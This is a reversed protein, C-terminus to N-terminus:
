TRIIKIQVHLIWDSRKLSFFGNLKTNVNRPIASIRTTELQTRNHNMVDECDRDDDSVSSFTKCRSIKIKEEKMVKCPCNKEIMVNSWTCGPWTQLDQAWRNGPCDPSFGCLDKKIFNYRPSRNKYDRHCPKSLSKDGTINWYDDIFTEYLGDIRVKTERHIDISGVFRGDVFKRERNFMIGCMDEGM